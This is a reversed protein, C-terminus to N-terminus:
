PREETPRGALRSPWATEPVKDPGGGARGGGSGRIRQAEYHAKCLGRAYHLRRCEPRRCTGHQRVAIPERAPWDNRAAYNSVSATHCGVAAAIVKAVFGSRGVRIAPATSVPNTCRPMAGHRKARAECAAQHARALHEYTVGGSGAPRRAPSAGSGVRAVSLSPERVESASRAEWAESAPRVRLPLSYAPTEHHRLRLAKRQRTLLPISDGVPAVM